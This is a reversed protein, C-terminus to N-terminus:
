DPKVLYSAYYATQRSNRLGNIKESSFGQRGAVIRIFRDVIKQFDEYMDDTIKIVRDEGQLYYEYLNIRGRITFAGLAGDTLALIFATKKKGEIKQFFKQILKAPSNYADFDIFSFEMVKGLHNEVFDKNDGEFVNNAGVIRKLLKVKSLDKEVVFVRDFIEQYHKTLAGSGGYLELALGERTKQAVELRQALKDEDLEPATEEASRPWKELIDAEIVLVNRLEKGFWLCRDLTEIIQKDISEYM